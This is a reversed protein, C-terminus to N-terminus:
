MSSHLVQGRVRRILWWEAIGVVCVALLSSLYAWASVPAELTVFAWSSLSMMLGKEGNAGDWAQVAFPILRGPEFAVDRAADRAVLPRVMVVRWRGDKWVGRGTVDQAGEPQIRIPKQFGDAAEKVVPNKGAEGLDAQWHWLAVPKGASGLFFHPREGGAAAVPFQLRIADRLKESRRAKLDLLPYTFQGLAADPGPAHEVDKFRDDWELLFAIATDGYYAHVTVADV